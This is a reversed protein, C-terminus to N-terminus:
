PLLRIGTSPEATASTAKQALAALEQTQETLTAFQKRARETSFEIFESPSKVDLLRRAFEFATNSNTQAFELLKNNYDQAGKVATSYSGKILDTAQPTANTKMDM